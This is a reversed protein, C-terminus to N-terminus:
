QPLCLVRRPPMLGPFTVNHEKRDGTGVLEWDSPVPQHSQPFLPIMYHTVQPTQPSAPLSLGMVSTTLIRVVPHDRLWNYARSGEPQKLGRERASKKEMKIRSDFARTQTLSSRSYM